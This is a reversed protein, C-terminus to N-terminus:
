RAIEGCRELIVRVVELGTDERFYEEARNAEKEAEESTGIFYLGDDYYRRSETEAVVEFRWRYRTTASM